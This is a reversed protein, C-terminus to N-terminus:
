ESRWFYYDTNFLESSWEIESWFVQESYLSSVSFYNCNLGMSLKRGEASVEGAALSSILGVVLCVLVVKRM